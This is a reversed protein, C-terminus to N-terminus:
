LLWDLNQLEWEQGYLRLFSVHQKIQEMTMLNWHKLLDITVTSPVVPSPFTSLPIGTVKPQFQLINFVDLMDFSELRRRLEKVRMQLNYNILIQESADDTPIM